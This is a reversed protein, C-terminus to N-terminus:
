RDNAKTPFFRPFSGIESSILKPDMNIASKNRTKICVVEERSKPIKKWFM